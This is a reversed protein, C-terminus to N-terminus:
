TQSALMRMTVTSGRRSGLYSCPASNKKEIRMFTTSAYILFQQQPQYFRHRLKSQNVTRSLVYSVTSQHHFFQDCFESLNVRKWSRTFLFVKTKPIASDAHTYTRTALTQLSRRVANMNQMHSYIRCENIGSSYSFGLELILPGEFPRWFIYDSNEEFM